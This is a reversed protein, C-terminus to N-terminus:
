GGSTPSPTGAPGTPTTTTTATSTPGSTSTSTATASPSPTPRGDDTPAPQEDTQDTAAPQPATERPALPQDANSAIGVFYVVAITAAFLVGALIAMRRWPWGWGNTEPEDENETDTEPPSAPEPHPLAVDAESPHREAATPAHASAAASMQQTVKRVQRETQHAARAIYTSTVAAVISMIAAGTITGAVGLRSSAYAVISAAGAGGAISRWDLAPSPKDDTPHAESPISAPSSM